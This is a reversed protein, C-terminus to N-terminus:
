PGSHTLCSRASSCTLTPTRIGPSYPADPPPLPSTLRAWSVPGFVGRPFLLSPLPTSFVSSQPFSITEWSLGLSLLSLFAGSLPNPSRGSEWPAGLGPRVQAAGAPPTQGGRGAATGAAAGATSGAGGAAASGAGQDRAAQLGAPASAPRGAGCGAAGEAPVPLTLPWTSCWRAGPPREEVQEWTM